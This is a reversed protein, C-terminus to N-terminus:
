PPGMRSGLVGTLAPSLERSFLASVGAVEMLPGRLELPWSAESTHNMRTLPM